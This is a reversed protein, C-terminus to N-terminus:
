HRYIFALIPGSLNNQGNLLEGEGARTTEEFEWMLEDSGCWMDPRNFPNGRYIECGQTQAGAQPAILKIKLTVQAMASIRFPTSLNIYTVIQNGGELQEYGQHIATPSGAALRGNYLSISDVVVSTNPQVPNAIGVSVLSCNDFATITVADVQNRSFNVFWGKNNGGAPVQEQVPLVTPFRLLYSLGRDLPPVPLPTGQIPSSPVVPGSLMSPGSPTVFPAPSPGPSPVAPQYGSPASPKAPPFQPSQYGFSPPNTAPQQAPSFQLPTYAFSPPANAPQYGFSSPAGSPQYGFSPAAAAPQYASQMMGPKQVHPNPIPGSGPWVSPLGGMGPSGAGPNLNGPPGGPRIISGGLNMAQLEPPVQGAGSMNPMQVGSMNPMQVSARQYGPAATQQAQYNASATRQPSPSSLRALEDPRKKFTNFDLPCTVSLMGPQVCNECLAHLKPCNLIYMSCNFKSQPTKCGPCVFSEPLGTYDKKPTEVSLILKGLQQIDKPKLTTRRDFLDLIERSIDCFNVRKFLSPLKAALTSSLEAESKGAISLQGDRDDPSPTVCGNCYADFVSIDFYNDAPKLCQCCQLLAESIKEMGKLRELLLINAQIQAKFRKDIAAKIEPNIATPPIQKQLRDIEQLVATSIEQSDEYVDKKICGQSKGDHRCSTCIVCLHGLCVEEVVIDGHHPCRVEGAILIDKIAQNDPIDELKGWLIDNCSPCVTRGQQKTWNEVCALCYTHGCKLTKPRRDTMNYHDMCVQCSLAEMAKNGDVDRLGKSLLM